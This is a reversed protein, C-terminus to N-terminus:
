IFVSNDFSCYPFSSSKYETTFCETVFELVVIASYTVIGESIKLQMVQIYGSLLTCNVM